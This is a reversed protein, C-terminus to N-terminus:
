AACQEKRDRLSWYSRGGDFCECAAFLWAGDHKAKRAVRQMASMEIEQPTTTDNSIM